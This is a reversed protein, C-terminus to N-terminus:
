KGICNVNIQDGGMSTQAALTIGGSSPSTVKIPQFTSNDTATCVPANKFNAASGFSVACSAVTGSGVTVVFANSTGGAAVSGNPTSGCSSVTPTTNAVSDTVSSLLTGASLTLGQLKSSKAGGVLQVKTLDNSLPITSQDCAAGNVTCGQWTVPTLLSGSDIKILEPATACIASVPTNILSVGRMTSPNIEVAYLSCNSGNTQIDGNIITYTGGGFLKLPISASGNEADLIPDIFTYSGLGSVVTGAVITSLHVSTINDYIRTFVGDGDALVMGYYGGIMNIYSVNALGDGLMELNAEGTASLDVDLHRIDRSYGGQFLKVGAMEAGVRL